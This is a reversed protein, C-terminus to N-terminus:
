LHKSKNKLIDMISDKGIHLGLFFSSEVMHAIFRRTKPGIDNEDCFASLEEVLEDLGDAVKKATEPSTVAGAKEIFDEKVEDKTEM